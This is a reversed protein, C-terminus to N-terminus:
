FERLGKQLCKLLFFLHFLVCFREEGEQDEKLSVHRSKKNRYEPILFGAVNEQEQM